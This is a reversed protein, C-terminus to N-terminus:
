KGLALRNILYEPLGIEEMRKQVAPIDYPIRKYEVFGSDSDFLVYCADANSDRPQGVSGVNVIYKREKTLVKSTDRIPALTTENTFEIIVPQHSHGIFCVNKTIASYNDLADQMSMIYRWEEPEAPTAHSLQINDVEASPYLSKLFEKNDDTLKKETWEMSAVAYPNFYSTDVKGIAAWDHNGALMVDTNEKLLEISENPYPGYGVIDGLFLKKDVNQKEIDELVANFADLNSHIDSFIAYKM